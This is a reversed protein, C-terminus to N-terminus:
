GGQLTVKKMASRCILKGIIILVVSWFLQLFIAKVAENGIINGSYIRLPVNEMSAFPLLEFIQRIRPPFFPLPIVIGQFIEATMAFIIRLGQPSVTFFSLMYIIMCVSVTVCLALPMSLCFLLFTKWGPIMMLRYPEPMFFACALIPFCRLLARSTRNAVSRAFWMNYIDIPRCLEYCINGDMISDFIENEMFWTMFLALFAQQMWIYSALQGFEMPFAAPDSSKFAHFLKIEMFGWVFQTAIGALAATRYQLGM